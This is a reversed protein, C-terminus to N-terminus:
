KKDAETFNGSKSTSEDNRFFLQKAKSVFDFSKLTFKVIRLLESLISGYFVCASINGSLDPMCVIFFPYKNKNGYLKYEYIGNVVTIDLDTM